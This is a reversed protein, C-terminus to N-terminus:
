IGQSYRAWADEFPGVFQVEGHKLVLGLSCYRRLLDPNHSAIVLLGASELLDNVRRAFKGQFSQDGAEIGEDLLLIDRRWATALAAMLRARMGQSYTRIPLHLYAGLETFAAIEETVGGVNERAEGFILQQFKICEYGTMDPSVGTGVEFLCGISGRIVVDGRSPPYIGAIVKLLTTKGAGNHGILALHQGRLLEFSVGKLAQVHVRGDRRDLNGGISSRFTPKRLLRLQNPAFVPINLHVDRLVASCENM